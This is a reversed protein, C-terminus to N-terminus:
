AVRELLEGCESLKCLRFGLAGLSMDTSLFVHVMALGFGVRSGPGACSLFCEREVCARGRRGWLEGGTRVRRGAIVEGRTGDPIWGSGVM